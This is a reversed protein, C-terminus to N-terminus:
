FDTLKNSIKEISVRGAIMQRSASTYLRMANVETINDFYGFFMQHAIANSAGGSYISHGDVVTIRPKHHNRFTLDCSFPYVNLGGGMSQWPTLNFGGSSPTDYARETGASGSRWRHLFVGSNYVATGFWSSGGNTSFQLYIQNAFANLYVGSMRFAFDYDPLQMVLETTPSVEFDHRFVTKKLNEFDGSLFWASGDSSLEIEEGPTLVVNEGANNITDGGSPIITLIGTGGNQIKQYWGNPINNAAINLLTYTADGIVQFRQYTNIHTTQQVTTATRITYQFLAGSGTYQAIAFRNIEDDVLKANSFFLQCQGLNSLVFVVEQATSPLKFSQRAYAPITWFVGSYAIRVNGDNLSNDVTVWSSQIQTPASQVISAPRFVYNQEQTGDMLYAAAYLNNEGFPKWDLSKITEVMLYTKESAFRYAIM